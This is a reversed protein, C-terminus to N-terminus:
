SGGSGSVSGCYGSQYGSVAGESCRESSALKLEDLCELVDSFECGGEGTEVSIVPCSWGVCCNSIVTPGVSLQQVVSATFKCVRFFTM